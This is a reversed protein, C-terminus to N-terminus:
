VRLLYISLEPAGNCDPNMMYFAESDRSGVVREFKARMYMIDGDNEAGKPGEGEGSPLVGAGMSIPEVAKLIRLEKAGCERRSTFGCETGNCYTRWLPQELLRGQNKDCELAIRVLGSAMEKVLRSIPTALEVILVPPSSADKQFAFHVHGKRHGFLTGVVRPGLGNQLNGKHKNLTTTLVFRLRSVAVQLKRRTVNATNSASEQVQKDKDKKEELITSLNSKFIPVDGTPKEEEKGKESAFILSKLSVLEDDDENSVKTTWNFQRKNSPLDPSSKAM